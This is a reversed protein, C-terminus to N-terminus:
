LGQAGKHLHKELAEVGGLWESSLIIVEEEPILGTIVVVRVNPHNHKTERASQILARSLFVLVDGDYLRNWVGDLESVIEIKLEGKKAAM